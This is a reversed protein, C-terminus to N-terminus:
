ANTTKEFYLWLKGFSGCDTGRIRSKWLKVCDTGRIRPVPVDPFVSFPFNGLGKLLVSHKLSVSVFDTRFDREIDGSQLTFHAFDPSLLVDSRLVKGRISSAM